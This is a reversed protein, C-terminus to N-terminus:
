CTKLDTLLVAKKKKKKTRKVEPRFYMWNQSKENMATVKAAIERKSRQM